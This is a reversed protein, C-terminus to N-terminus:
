LIDPPSTYFLYTCDTDNLPRFQFYDVFDEHNWVNAGQWTKSPHPDHVVNLKRDCVVMHNVNQERPYNRSRVSVLYFGGISEDLPLEEGEIKEFGPRCFMGEYRYGYSVLFYYFVVWWRESSTRTLHPVAQLDIELVSAIAARMCDGTKPSTEIQEVPRM